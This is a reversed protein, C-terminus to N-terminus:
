TVLSSPNVVFTVRKGGKALVWTQESTSKFTKKKLISTPHIWLLLNPKM